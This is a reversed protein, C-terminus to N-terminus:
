HTSSLPASSASAAPKPAPTMPVITQQPRAMQIVPVRIVPFQAHTSKLTFEMPQGKPLEFGQPFTLTATFTRGPITEKTQLEVDKSTIAADSFTVLSNGNNQVTIQPSTQSTLPGPPLVIQPPSVVIAPTVNAWATINIVPM